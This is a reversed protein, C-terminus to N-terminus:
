DGPLSCFTPIARARIVFNKSKWASYSRESGTV